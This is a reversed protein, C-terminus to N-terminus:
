LYYNVKGARNQKRITVNNPLAYGAETEVYILTESTIVAALKEIISAIFNQHFPPDLFIIDFKQEFTTTYIDANIIQARPQCQLKEIQKHLQKSLALSKECFTVQAAGRSLAELGLAGSGAFADLCHAGHINHMLWNFVTERVRDPTPKLEPLNLTDLKRGRWDGGIIRIQKNATL